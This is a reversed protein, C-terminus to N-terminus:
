GIWKYGVGWVTGILETKTYRATKSRIRRIHEAVIASDGTADLGRIKEYISEKSFVQGPHMSLLELIEYETNTLSIREGRCTVSREEYCIMVDGATKVHSKRERRRERRLHAMVRAGLEDISFPKLIDDDGGMLFGNIRDQEEVRATLFLIPCDVRERIKRCVELGDMDPLGVDLLILDPAEEAKRLAEAGNRAATVRYGQIEFYDQLLRVIGEEDDAILLTQGTLDM